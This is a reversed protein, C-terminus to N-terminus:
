YPGHDKKIYRFDVTYFMSLCTATSKSKIVNVNFDQNYVVKGYRQYM